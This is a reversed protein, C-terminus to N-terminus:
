KLSGVKKEFYKYVSCQSLVWKSFETDRYKTILLQYGTRDQEKITVPRYLISTPQKSCLDMMYAAHSALELNDTNEMTRRFYERALNRIGYEQKFTEEAKTMREAVGQVNFPYATGRYYFYRMMTGLSGQWIGGSYGWGSSNFLLTGLRFAASDSGPTGKQEAKKALKVAIQAFSLRTYERMGRVSLRVSDTGTYLEQYPLEMGTFRVTDMTSYFTGYNPPIWGYENTDPTATWYSTPIQKFLTLAEEFEGQRMLRTGRLDLLDTRKLRFAKVLNGEYDQEGGSEVVKQLTALDEITAYMDLLLNRTVRDNAASFALIAKPVDNQQLYQRGIAAMVKDYRTHGNKNQKEQFWVLTASIHQELNSGIKGSSKAQRLFDLLRIQHQLDYNGRASQQAEDLCEAAVEYDEDMLDIYGAIMYWLAPELVNHNKAATLVFRRFEAVYERGSLIRILAPEKEEGRKNNNQDVHYYYITDWSREPAIHRESFRHSYYYHYDEEINSQVFRVTDASYDRREFVGSTQVQYDRTEMDQYLYSEIRHLERLVALVLHPSNPELKYMERLYDFTLGQTKFGKLMWLTAREHDNAALKYVDNWDQKSKLRLDRVSIERQGECSDFVHVFWYNALAPQGALRAAGAKHGLAWYRIPSQTPNPEILTKYLQIAKEYQGAYRALRVVQYGYRLKLFNSTSAHYLEMGKDILDQKSPKVEEQETKNKWPDSARAYGNCELAYSFYQLFPIDRRKSILRIAEAFYATDPSNWKHTPPDIIDKATPVNGQEITLLLSDIMNGYSKYIFDHLSRDSIQGGFYRKWDELNEQERIDLWKGGIFEASPGEGYQEGSQHEQLVTRYFSQYISDSLLDPDVYSIRYKEYDYEPGCSYSPKTGSLLVALSICAATLLVSITAKM